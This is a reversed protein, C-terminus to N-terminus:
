HTEFIHSMWFTRMLLTLHPPERKHLLIIFVLRRVIEGREGQPGPDGPSGTNGQLLCLITLCYACFQSAIFHRNTMQNLTASSKRPSLFLLCSVRAGPPGM